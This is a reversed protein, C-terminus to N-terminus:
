FLRRRNGRRYSFYVILFGVLAGGLHAVHAVQDNPDNRYAMYLELGAYIVVFWKMKIPLVFYINVIDNPFLYGVGALIGFIAGSAGVTSSQTAAEKLHNAISFIEKQVEVSNPDVVANPNIQVLNNVWPYKNLLMNLNRITPHDQLFNLDSIVPYTEILTALGSIVGAGIGCILYFTLFRKAGWVMELKTGFMFLALMNFLIHGFGQTSHMFMYTLLQHPKFDKSLFHHMAFWDYVPFKSQFTLQALFVLGTVIMLNKVVPTLPM